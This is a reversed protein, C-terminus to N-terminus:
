ELSGPSLASRRRLEHSIAHLFAELDSTKRELTRTRDEVRQELEPRLQEAEMRTKILDDIDLINGYLRVVKGQKWSM